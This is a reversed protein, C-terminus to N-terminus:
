WNNVSVEETCDDENRDNDDCSRRGPRSTTRRLLAPRKRRCGVNEEYKNHVQQVNINKYIRFMRENLSPTM